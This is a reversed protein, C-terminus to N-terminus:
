LWFQLQATFQGRRRIQGGDRANHQYSGRALLNRQIYAGVGAEVRNVPSDWSRPPGSGQVKSFTLRDGRVALFVGPRVKYTAEVFGGAADLPGALTPVGWRNWVGEGRVLWHDRSYEADLGIAREGGDGAAAPSGSTKLRDRVTDSLYPGRAASTGLVLGVIPRWELRASVQKGRNNDRTRPDSVTGATLAASAALPGTSTHVQVGTDWQFATVLPMGTALTQNGIGYIPQWGRARMRLLEDVDAPVADPRLSTLYQYALPYGILPNGNGYARRSFAGFTPPIRGVQVDVARNKWPRVRAYLAYPRPADGNESRVDGLLSVRDSLRIQGSVALRLLRMTNHEYDTYNFWATEDDQTSASFSVDTGIVIRGGALAFPQTPLEQAHLVRAASLALVFTVARASSM